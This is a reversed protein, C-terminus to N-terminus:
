RYFNCFSGGDPGVSDFELNEGVSVSVFVRGDVDDREISFSSIFKIFRCCSGTSHEFRACPPKFNKNRCAFVGVESALKVESTEVHYISQVIEPIQFRSGVVSAAFIAVVAPAPLKM